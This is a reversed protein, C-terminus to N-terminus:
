KKYIKPGKFKLKLSLILVRSFLIIELLKVSYKGLGQLVINNGIIKFIYKLYM